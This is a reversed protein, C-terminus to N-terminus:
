RAPAPATPAAPPPAPAKPAAAVAPAPDAPGPQAVGRCGILWADYVPHEFPHLGPSNAFMWGKFLQRTPPTARGPIPRPSSQIEMHAAAGRQGLEPASDECVHVLFILDKYRVPQGVPAEFRLTEATTKDLAQIVAAARRPRKAPALPKAPVADSAAAADSPASPLLVTPPPVPAAGPIAPTQGAPPAAEPGTPPPTQAMSGTAFVAILLAAAPALVRM